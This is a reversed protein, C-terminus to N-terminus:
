YYKLLLEFFFKYTYIFYTYTYIFNQIEKQM